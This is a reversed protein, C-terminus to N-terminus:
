SEITFLKEVSLNFVRALKLALMVSPTYNGKEVAIITQRSGGVRAALGEQTIGATVRASQVKNAVHEVMPVDHLTAVHTDIRSLM